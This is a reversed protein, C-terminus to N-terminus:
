GLLDPTKLARLLAKAKLKTEDLEAEPESDITIGGGVGLTITRNKFVLSRIVMGFDASGNDGLYGAVGSYVGRRGAELEGIIEIARLKPAGTMSGGPFAATLANTAKM